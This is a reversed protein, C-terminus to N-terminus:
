IGDVLSAVEAKVVEGQDRRLHSQEPVELFFSSGKGPVSKAWVRGGLREALEMCLYLGLGTGGTRQTLYNEARFFKTFLMKQDGLSIGIGQDEICFLVGGNKAPEAKLTVTGEPTYKLANTIYNQLIERIHREESIVTPTHSDVVKKLTLGAQQAQADFDNMCQTLMVDPNIQTLSIPLNDNQAEALVSLDKVIEALQLSSRHAQEIVPLLKPSVEDKSLLVSGLAAELIALPTRLEHSAVSIFGTRQEELTREKSIDECVLIYEEAQGVISVPTVVIDLDIRTGDEQTLSLDRRHQASHSSKFINVLSRKPDTRRYLPLVRVLEKGDLEEKRGTMIRAAENHQLIKGKSNTVIIGTNLSDVLTLLRSNEQESKQRLHELARKEQRDSQTLRSVMFGFALLAFITLSITRLGDLALPEFPPSSIVAYMIAGEGLVTVLVGPMQYLYAASVIMFVFFASYPTSISGILAVLFGTFLTDVLMMLAPSATTHSKKVWSTHQLLNYATAVLLLAYVFEAQPTDIPFTLLVAVITAWRIQRTTREFTDRKNSGIKQQTM